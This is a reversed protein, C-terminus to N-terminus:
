QRLLNPTNEPLMYKSRPYIEHHPHKGRGIMVFNAV